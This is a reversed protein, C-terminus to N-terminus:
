IACCCASICLKASSKHGPLARVCVFTLWLRWIELHRRSATILIYWGGLIVRLADFLPRFCGCNAVSWYYTLSPRLFPLWRVVSIHFAYRVIDLGSGEDRVSTVTSTVTVLSASWNTIYLSSTFGVGTVVCHMISNTRCTNQSVLESRRMSAIASVLTTLRGSVVLWAAPLPSFAGAWWAVSFDTHRTTVQLATLLTICMITM